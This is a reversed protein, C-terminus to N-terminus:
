ICDCPQSATGGDNETATNDLDQRSGTGIPVGCLMESTDGSVPMSAVLREIAAVPHQVDVDCQPDDFDDFTQHYTQADRQYTQEENPRRPYASAARSPSASEEAPAESESPNRRAEFDAAQKEVLALIKDLEDETLKHKEVLRGVSLAVRDPRELKSM